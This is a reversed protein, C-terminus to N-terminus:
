AVGARIALAALAAANHLDLKGMINQRHASVTKPSLELEAAIDKTVMGQGILSLVKVERDTLLEELQHKLGNAQSAPDTSQDLRKLRSEVTLILEEPSFPKTLYDDAGSFMGMRVSSRDDQASILILPLRALEPDRRVQMLLAMGDMGPMQIDTILIDVPQSKLLRMAEVGDCATEVVWDPRLTGLARTLPLLLLREDDVLLVRM